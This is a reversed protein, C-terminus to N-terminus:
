VLRLKSKIFIDFKLVINDISVTCGNYEMAIIFELSTTESIEVL